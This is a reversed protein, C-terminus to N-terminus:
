IEDIKDKLRKIVDTLLFGIVTFTAVPAFSSLMSLLLTPFGSPDKLMFVLNIIHLARWIVCIGALTEKYESKRRVAFLRLFRGLVLGIRVFGAWSWDTTTFMLIEWHLFLKLM